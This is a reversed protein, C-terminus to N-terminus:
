REQRSQLLAWKEDIHRQIQKIIERGEDDKFLHRFRGQPKLFDDVPRKEKPRHNITYKGEAFEYIPWFCTDAALKSVEITDSGPYGWGLPCPVLVNLFSPGDAALAKRVKTVMDNWLAITTQGAYAIDHAIVIEM